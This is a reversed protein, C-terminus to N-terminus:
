FWCVSCAEYTVVSDIEQRYLDLFVLPNLTDTEVEVKLREGPNLAINYGYVEPSSASFNGAESYPLPVAISDFLANEFAKEWGSYAATDQVFDRKYKERATPSDFFDKAKNVRSCSALLFVAFSLYIFQLLQKKKM